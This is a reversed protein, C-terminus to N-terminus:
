RADGGQRDLWAALDSARWLKLSGVYFTPVHPRVHRDFSDVEMGLAHAAEQRQYAIPVVPRQPKASM